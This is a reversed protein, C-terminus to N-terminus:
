IVISNEPYCDNGNIGAIEGFWRSPCVIKKDPHEALIAPMLSYSSNAIIFDKCTKMLRFDELYNGDAFWYKANLVYSNFDWSFAVHHQYLFFITSAIFLLIMLKNSKIFQYFAATRETLIEKLNFSKMKLRTDEKSIM